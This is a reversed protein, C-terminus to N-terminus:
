PWSTESKTIIAKGIHQKPFKKVTISKMYEFFHLTSTMLSASIFMPAFVLVSETLWDVQRRNFKLVMDMSQWILAVGIILLITGIGGRGKYYLYGTICPLILGIAGILVGNKFDDMSFFTTDM